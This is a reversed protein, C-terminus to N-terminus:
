SVGFRAVLCCVTYMITLVKINGCTMCINFGKNLNKFGALLTPRPLVSLLFTLLDLATCVNYYLSMAAPSAPDVASQSCLICM